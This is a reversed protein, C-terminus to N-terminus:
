NIMVQNNVSLGATSASMVTMRVLKGVSNVVIATKCDKREV